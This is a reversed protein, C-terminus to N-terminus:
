SNIFARRVRKIFSMEKYEIFRVYKRGITIEISEVDELELHIHDIGILSHNFHNGILKITQSEDLILSSGLSRYANHHIGAVETLQMLPIGPYIISGGLSKNYATSGSPTSVCLGNGRFVELRLENLAYYTQFSDKKNIKIELMYRKMTKFQRSTVDKIFQDVEDVQYDTYFGLTGTHIGVFCCDVNLYQHVAELITGDGGISIVLDPNKEDYIFFNQLSEKIKLATKKSLDDNRVMLAYKMKRGEM